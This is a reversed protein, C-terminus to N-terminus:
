VLSVGLVIVSLNNAFVGLGVAVLTGLWGEVVVGVYRDLPAPTTALRDAVGAFLGAVVVLTLLNVALLTWVGEGLAWEVVPNAEAGPGVVQAAALTTLMDVTLLLFLAVALWDWYEGTRPGRATEAMPRVVHGVPM